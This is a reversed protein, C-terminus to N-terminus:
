WGVLRLIAGPYNGDSSGNVFIASSITTDDTDLRLRRLPASQYLIHSHIQTAAELGFDVDHVPLFQSSSHLAMRIFGPPAHPASEVLWVIRTHSCLHVSSNGADADM